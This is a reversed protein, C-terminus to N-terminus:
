TILKLLMQYNPNYHDDTVKFDHNGIIEFGTKLYFRIAQENGVWTYLWLAVQANRKSYDINFNLLEYGIGLGHFEKLLYIRELKASNQELVNGHKCNLVIKSFGIPEENNCVIHYINTTNNLETLIVEPNYHTDLYQDMQAPSCSKWHADAVAIRGIKLITFVDEITALIIKTL